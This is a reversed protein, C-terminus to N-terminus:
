AAKVSPASPKFYEVADSLSTLIREPRPPEFRQLAKDADAGFRWLCKFFLEAIGQAEERDMALLRQYLQTEAALVPEDGLLIHLFALQPVYRGFVAVCVTLPTSLILGAPGWLITWFVTTV